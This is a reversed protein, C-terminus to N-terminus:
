SHFLNHFSRKVQQETKGAAIPRGTTGVCNLSRSGLSSLIGQFPLSLSLSLKEKFSVAETGAWLLSASGRPAAVLDFRSSRPYTPLIITFGFDASISLKRISGARKQSSHPFGGVPDM